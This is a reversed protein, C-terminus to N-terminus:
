SDILYALDDLGAREWRELPPPTPMRYKPDTVCFCNKRSGSRIYFEALDGDERERFCDTKKIAVEEMQKGGGYVAFICVSYPDPISDNVVCWNYAATCSLGVIRETVGHRLHGWTPHKELKMMM